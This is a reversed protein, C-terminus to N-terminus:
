KSERITSWEMILSYAVALFTPGIFVGIFGFAIVGGLIGLLVLVLPLNSGLSIFYPKLFNDVASIVLLGWLFLFLSWSTEGSSYLWISAPVWLLPPGMPILSLFFTILGLFTAGPIGALWFGLAALLGQALATGLIGYIVSILTNKSIDIISRGRAGAFKNILNSIRDAFKTGHRFFFYAILVGLTIDLLGYGIDAGIKIIEQSTPAAYEQLAASLKEKDSDFDFFVWAKELYEGVYAIESLSQATAKTSDQLLNQLFDSVKTFNETLSTGIIFLPFIFFSALMGTMLLAALSTKGKLKEKLWIFAPWTSLTFMAAMLIGPFFPTMIILCAILILTFGLIGVILQYLQNKDKMDLDIM